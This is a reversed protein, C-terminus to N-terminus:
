LWQVVMSFSAILPPPVGKIMQEYNGRVMEEKRNFIMAQTQAAHQALSDMLAAEHVSEGQRGQLCKSRYSVQVWTYKEKNNALEKACSLNDRRKEEEEFLRSNVISDSPPCFSFGSVLLPHSM